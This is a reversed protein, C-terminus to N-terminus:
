EDEGLNGFRFRLCNNIRPHLSVHFQDNANHTDNVSTDPISNSSQINKAETLVPKFTFNGSGNATIINELFDRCIDKM